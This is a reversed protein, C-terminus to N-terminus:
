DRRLSLQDSDNYWARLQDQPTSPHHRILDLMIRIDFTSCMYDVMLDLDPNSLGFRKTLCTKCMYGGAEIFFFAGDNSGIQEESIPEVCNICLNTM